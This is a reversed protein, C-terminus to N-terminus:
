PENRAVHVRYVVIVTNTSGELGKIELVDPYRITRLFANIDQELKDENGKNKFVRVQRIM